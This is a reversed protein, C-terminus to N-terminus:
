IGSLVINPLESDDWDMSPAGIRVIVMEESPIIYVRQGASGDLYVVDDRAFPEQAAVVANISKGYTRAPNHPSGRWIQWGYNPNAPSPAVMQNIWQSSVIQQDGVTGQNLILMGIRLWDQASAHHCCSFRPWGGERDLWLRGDSAGIPKWIQDSLWQSYRMGSAGEIVWGLMATNANAYCFEQGAVCTRPWRVAAAGIDDGLSYQMYADVDPGTFGPSEIGSAMELYLRIPIDGQVSGAFSPIYRAIPDDVSEVLGQDVAAGLALAVVTKGMSATAFRSSRDFDEAYFEHELAGRRWVLFAYSDKEDVLAQARSLADPSITPEALPEMAAANSGALVEQPQYWEVDRVLTERPFNALREAAMERQQQSPWADDQAMSVNPASAAVAALCAAGLLKKVMDKSGVDAIKKPYISGSQGAVGEAPVM